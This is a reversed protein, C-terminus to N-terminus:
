TADFYGEQEMGGFIGMGREYRIREGVSLDAFIQLMLDDTLNDIFNERM